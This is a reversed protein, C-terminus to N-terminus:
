DAQLTPVTADDFALVVPVTFHTGDIETVPRSTDLYIRWTTTIAAPASGGSPTPPQYTFSGTALQLGHVTTTGAFSSTVVSTPDLVYGAPLGTVTSPITVTLGLSGPVSGSTLVGASVSRGTLFNDVLSWTGPLYTLTVTATPDAFRGTVFYTCTVVHTGTDEACLPARTSDVQATGIGPGTLTFEPDLDTLSALNIHRGSPPAFTVTIWNRDNLTNIDVSGGASPDGPAATTGQVTFSLTQATNSAGTVTGSSTTVDANKFAGAAFSIRVVGFPVDATGIDYRFRTTGLQTMAAAMLANGNLQPTFDSAHAVIVKANSQLPDNYYVDESAGGNESHLLATAVSGDSGTITVVPTPTHTYSRDGTSSPASATGGQNLTFTTTGNLIRAYDLTAGSAPLYTVDVTKDTSDAITGNYNVYDVSGG